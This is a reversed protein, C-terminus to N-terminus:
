SIGLRPGDPNPELDLTRDSLARSAEEDLLLVTRGEHEFIADGPREQDLASTLGKNAVVLRVATDSPADAQDLLRSLYGGAAETINLM